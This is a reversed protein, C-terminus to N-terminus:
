GGLDEMMLTAYEKIGSGFWREYAKSNRSSVVVLHKCFHKTAHEKIVSWWEKVLPQGRFIQSAWAQSVWYTLKGDIDKTFRAIVYGAVEGQYEALWFNGQGGLFTMNAISELTQNFVGLPDGQVHSERVFGSVAREIAKKNLSLPLQKIIKIRPRAM